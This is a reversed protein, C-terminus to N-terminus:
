ANVLGNLFQSLAGTAQCTSWNFSARMDVPSTARFNGFSPSTFQVGTYLYSDVTADRNRVSVSMTFQPIAGSVHYSAALDMFLQQFAPGFRTYMLSGRGGNWITQHVPVGGLTIPTIKLAQDIASTSFDELYGLSSDIFTDGYNDVVEFAVDTGVNYGQIMVTM